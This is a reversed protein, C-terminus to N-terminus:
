SVEIDGTTCSKLGEGKYLLHLIVREKRSHLQFHRGM